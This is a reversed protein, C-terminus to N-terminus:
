HRYKRGLIWRGLALWVGKLIHPKSNDLNAVLVLPHWVQDLTLNSRMAYSSICTLIETYCNMCTVGLFSRWTTLKLTRFVTSICTFQALCGTIYFFTLPYTVRTVFRLRYNPWMLHSERVLLTLANMEERRDFLLEWESAKQNVRPGCLASFKSKRPRYM